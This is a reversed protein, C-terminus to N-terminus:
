PEARLVDHLLELGPAIVSERGLRVASLMFESKETTAEIVRVGDIVCLVGFLTADAVERMVAAINEQHESSLSNFWASLRMLEPDPRRGPPAQLEQLCDTVASDRCYTKLSDVFETPTM